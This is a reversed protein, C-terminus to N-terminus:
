HMVVLHSIPHKYLKTLDNYEKNCTICKFMKYKVVRGKQLHKIFLKKGTVNYVRNEEHTQLHAKLRSARSFVKGCEECTHTKGLTSVYKECQLLHQKLEDPTDFTKDECFNCVFKDDKIHLVFHKKLNFKTTLQKDCISCPFMPRNESHTLMHKHLGRKSSLTSGCILCDYKREEDHTEMHAKLTKLGVLELNCIECNFKEDAHEDMHNRYELKNALVQHCVVCEVPQEVKMKHVTHEVNKHHILQNLYRFKEGCIDCKHPHPMAHLKLHAALGSSLRFDKGCIKCQHPKEGTHVSLHCKLKSIYKFKRDCIKCKYGNQTTIMTNELTISEDKSESNEDNEDGVSTSSAKFEMADLISSDEKIVVEDDAVSETETEIDTEVFNYEEIVPNCVSNDVFDMTTQTNDCYSYGEVTNLSTNSEKNSIFETSLSKELNSECYSYDNKTTLSTNSIQNSVFDTDLVPLEKADNNLSNQVITNNMSANIVKNKVSDSSMVDLNSAVANQCSNGETVPDSPNETVQKKIGHTKLTSFSTTSSSYSKKVPKSLSTSEKETKPHENVVVSLNTSIHNSYGNVTTNDGSSQGVSKNDDLISQKLIDCYQNQYTPDNSNVYQQESCYNKIDNNATTNRDIFYHNSITQEDNENDPSSNDYSVHMGNIDEYYESLEQYNLFNSGIHNLNNLADNTLPNLPQAVYMNDDYSFNSNQVTQMQSFNSTDAQYYGDYLVESEVQLSSKVGELSTFTQETM